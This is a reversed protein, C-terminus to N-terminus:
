KVWCNFAFDVTMLGPEVRFESKSLVSYSLDISTGSFLDVWASGNYIQIAFSGDNPGTNVYDVLGSHQLTLPYNNTTLYAEANYDDGPNQFYPDSSNPDQLLAAAKGSGSIKIASIGVTPFQNGVTENYPTLFYLNQSDVEVSIRADTVFYYYGALYVRFDYFRALRTPGGSSSPDLEPIQLDTVLFVNANAPDGDSILNLDVNAQQQNISINASKLLPLTANAPNGLYDNLRNNLLTRGDYAAAGGILIPSDITIEETVGGIDLIRTKPTGQILPKNQVQMTLRRNASAALILSGAIQLTKNVGFINNNVPM